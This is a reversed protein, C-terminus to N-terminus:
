TGALRSAGAPNGSSIDGVLAITDQLLSVKKRLAEFLSERAIASQPESRVAARSESIAEDIVELNRDLMAAVRPELQSKQAQAVQELGAIARSYLLEAAEIDKQASEVLAAAPANGSAAAPKSLLVETPGAAPDITGTARWAIWGGGAAVALVAAAALAHLVFHRRRPAPPASTEVRGGGAAHEARWRGALQLWVREPVDIPGLATSADAIAALDAAFGRCGACASLHAALEREFIPDLAGDTQEQLRARSVDCTM